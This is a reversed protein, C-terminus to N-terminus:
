KKLLITYGLPDSDNGFNTLFSLHGFLVAILFMPTFALFWLPTFVYRWTTSPFINKFYLVIIKAAITTVETGRNQIKVDKFQSFIKSLASPTFRFYDYPIYHYRASWPITIIAEGNQKLVRYIDDVLIQYDEVHELVETCIITDFFDNEFPIHKGDFHTIDTKNYDFKEADAIDVGYYKAQNENMLFRYPSEGCGLDLVNGHVRGLFPKVIRYVSLMHFDILLRIKFRISTFFTTPPTHAKPRYIESNSM